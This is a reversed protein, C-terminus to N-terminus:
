YFQFNNRGREKARYMADDAHRVLTEDDQADDPCISIGISFTITLEHEGILHPASMASVIKRAVVGADEAENIGPLLILFEDGGQRCVTDSERVCSLLREAVSQLLMDGALHGLTDNVAKFKDLDLFLLATKKKARADAILARRLRDAFLTRNPLKTLSDYHALFEIRAESEKRKTIDSFLSIYNIVEGRANKVVGISLWEPYVEGSKRRNWIEGQWQGLENITQWMLEYFDATQKGSSLLKPNRGMVEEVSYGTIQVFAPNVALINRNADTIVIAESSNDFMKAFLQLRGTADELKDVFVNFSKAMEGIDPNNADVDARRSLDMDHQIESMASHLKKVPKTINRVIVMRVFLTIIVLLLVQVAAHGVWLWDKIEALQAEEGTLDITVSAAGNIAGSQTNHCDLCNTGRFDQKAIFPVVVRLAPRGDRGYVKRFLTKGTALVERDMEDLPQEEPLGPGYQEVVSRGRIIRLELVGMSQSMKSLLLKRNEPISIQGTLMLMNMGNILGDATVVARSEATNEIQLEFRNIVWEMLIFFLLILAGQILIHLKEQVGTERWGKKLANM